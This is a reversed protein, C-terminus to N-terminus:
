FRAHEVDRWFVYLAVTAKAWTRKKPEIEGLM